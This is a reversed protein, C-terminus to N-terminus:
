RIGILKHTQLSLTWKPHELCYQICAKLNEKNRNAQNYDCPQLYYHAAQIHFYVDMEQGQYVVKVENAKKVKLPIKPFLDTKPSVTLWDIGAAVEKTGNTEMAVYKGESHLAEILAADAFLAPEGGTLVVFESPYAKLKQIIEELTMETSVSHDTDCFPCKLNCGSFRIFSAPRGTYFGEGQLSYFIENIPYLRHQEFTM